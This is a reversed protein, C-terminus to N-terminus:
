SLVGAAFLTGIDISGQWDRLRPHRDGPIVEVGGDGDLRAALVDTLETHALVIPSHTSVWVQSEYLAGLSEVVTEIARPHIGNEPEETVLLTPLTEDELYPLLTLVLIRLTGESLGSSTVRYGGAYEVAFYAHHDEDREIVDIANIQPLATRVHDVWSAFRGPAREHLDMALWPTNMGSTMLRTAYGPPAPRRLLDWDPDFFVVGERLLQAFWLAAPFLTPDAPVTSLALQASPVRLPPLDSEQTTTEHVFRTPARGERLIVPQWEPHRLTTGSTTIGQPFAGPQPRPGQDSFLFLYEDAVNLTRPGVELRVEYRLHTPVRQTLEAFTTDSLVEVVHDPLRAEIAFAIAEGKGKHLLELLSGARAPKGEGQRELFAGVARQQRLLDGLLVPIDLLTTKGAGNAGALVHYRDLDISLRPFCRYGYAEIRTIM